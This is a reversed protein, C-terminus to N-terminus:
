IASFLTYSVAKLKELFDYKSDINVCVRLLLGFCCVYLFFGAANQYFNDGDSERTQSYKDGQYNTKEALM